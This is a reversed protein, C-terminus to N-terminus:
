HGQAVPLDQELLQWSLSLVSIETAAVGLAQAAKEAAAQAAAQSSADVLFLADLLRGEPNEMPLPTSLAQDPTLLRSGIVGDMELLAPGLRGIVAGTDGSAQAGLRLVALWAGRGAGAEASITCVRRMPNRMRQLNTVSWPTQHQFAQFYEASRFAALNRTRYLGLYRRPGQVCRYRVGSVFGPLAVREQVHERDYWLNFDQEHEPDVDTWVFLIAPLDPSAQNSM